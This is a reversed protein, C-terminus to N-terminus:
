HGVNSDLYYYPQGIGPLGRVTFGRRDLAEIPNSRIHILDAIGAPREMAATAADERRVPRLLYGCHL